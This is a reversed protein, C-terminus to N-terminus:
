YAAILIKGTLEIKIEVRIGYARNDLLICEKKSWIKACNSSQTADDALM